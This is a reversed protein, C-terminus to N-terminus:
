LRIAPRRDERVINSKQKNLRKRNGTNSELFRIATQHEGAEAFSIAAMLRDFLNLKEQKHTNM